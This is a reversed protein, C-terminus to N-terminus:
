CRSYLMPCGALLLYAQLNSNKDILIKYKSDFVVKNSAFAILNLTIKIERQINRYPRYGITSGSFQGVRGFNIDHLEIHTGRTINYRSLVKRVQKLILFTNLINVLTANV